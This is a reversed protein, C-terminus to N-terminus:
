SRPVWAVAVQRNKTADRRYSWLGADTYTCQDSRWVPVGALQAEAASWLDVSRSGGVTTAGYGGIAAEVEDGVEYCCPGISPGIAARRPTDGLGIMAALGAAIVGAAVGRWGAHLVAVSTDGEVIIPMCDATAIVLPVGPYESILGDGEGAPGPRDVGIVVDGHVQHVSAWADSIGLAKSIRDRSHSDDRGNGDVADGFFAGRFGAPQIM